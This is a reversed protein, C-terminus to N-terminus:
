IFPPFHNEKQLNRIKANKLALEYSRPLHITKSNLVSIPLTHTFKKKFSYIGDLDEKGGGLNYRKLGIKKLDNIICNKLIEAPRSKYFDFSMGGLFSYGINRSYLTWETAIPINEKTYVFHLLGYEDIISQRISEHLKQEEFYYYSEANNRSMTEFYLEAFQKIYLKQFNEKNVVKVKLEDKKAKRLCKRVSRDYNQYIADSSQSLDVTLNFRSHNLNNSNRVFSNEDISCREYETIVNKSKLYKDLYKNFEDFLNKNLSQNYLSPSTFGYTSTSSYTNEISKLFSLYISYLILPKNFDDFFIFNILNANKPKCLDSIFPSQFPNREFSQIWFKYFTESDLKLLKM